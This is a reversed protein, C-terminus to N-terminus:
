VLPESIDMNIRVRLFEGSADDDKLNAVQLVKWIAKGILERTEFKLSRELIKHFQVWFMACSFQLYPMSQVDLVREFVVLHKGYSWPEFELVCELDLIDEFEFMLIHEGIDRIQLEGVTRWLPKFTRAVADVNLVRKTYFRGVLRHILEEEEKPVEAGDEEELLSHNVLTSSIAQIVNVNDGEIILRTFGADVAFELSRRCALLEAEESTNVKPGSTTMTLMVEGKDKRVIAGVRSRELGSFVAADFNLKYAFPPTPQWVESSPQEM